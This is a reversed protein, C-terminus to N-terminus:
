NGMVSVQMPLFQIEPLPIVQKGPLAEVVNNGDWRGGDLYLEHVLIGEEPM